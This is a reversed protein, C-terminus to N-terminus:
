NQISMKGLVGAGFVGSISPLVLVVLIISVVAFDDNEVNSSTLGGLAVAKGLVLLLIFPLLSAFIGSLIQTPTMAKKPFGPRSYSRGIFFMTFFSAIYLIIGGIYIGTRLSSNINTYQIFIAFIALLALSGTILLPALPSQEGTQLLREQIVLVKHSM